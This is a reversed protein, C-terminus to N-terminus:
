AYGPFFDVKIMHEPVGVDMLTRRLANVMLHPGSVYFLTHQLDQVSERILDASIVGSRYGEPIVTNPETLTCIVRMGAQSAATLVDKYAVESASRESYLLTVPRSEGTDVLYKLMSRFPTIGIGGAILVVPQKKNPPLVFDGSVGAALVPVDDGMDFLAQKFSSSPNYFRVGLHIESETPSSAITFFRRVGRNDPEHHALTFEMYQGPKFHVKHNPTFVFDYTTPGLKIKEKLTLFPKAKPSVIYSFVNGVVLALEPTSYISGIHVQPSFLIGVVVAYWRQMQATGPSTLPETLMVFALFFLSSHLATNQLTTVVDNGNLMAFLSVFVAASLLFLRVMEFRRIKRVLLLGCIVVIPMMYLNGVWWTASEGAGFATLVVAIAAPNFIHKGRINLLYKSAVALGSAASLFVFNNVTLSPTIILALILATILSSEPNHPVKWVYAFVRNVAWSVLLLYSTALTITLPSYPLVGFAGLMLAAVLLAVLYYILLRYMTTRDLFTDIWKM